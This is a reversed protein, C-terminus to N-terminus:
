FGVRSVKTAPKYDPDDKIAYLDALTYESETLRDQSVNNHALWNDLTNDKLKDFVLRQICRGSRIIAPDFADISENATLLLKFDGDSLLGDTINLLRSFGPNSRCNMSFFDASDELIIIRKSLKTETSEPSDSTSLERNLAGLTGNSLLLEKMYSPSAFLKEVDFIIEPMINQKYCEGLLYKIATSKGTGPDGTWIIINGSRNHIKDPLNKVSKFISESYNNILNKEELFNFYKIVFSPGSDSLSWVAVPFNTITKTQPKKLYKSFHDKLLKLTSKAFAITKAHIQPIIYNTNLGVFLNVLLTENTNTAIDNIIAINLQNNEIKSLKIKFEISDTVKFSEVIKIIDDWNKDKLDFEFSDLETYYLANQEIYEKLKSNFIYSSLTNTDFTIM